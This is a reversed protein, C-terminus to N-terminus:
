GDSYATLGLYGLVDSVSRRPGSHFEQLDGAWRREDAQWQRIFDTCVTASIRLNVAMASELSAAIAQSNGIPSPPKSMDQFISRTERRFPLATTRHLTELLSRRKDLQQQWYASEDPITQLGHQLGDFLGQIIVEGFEEKAAREPHKFPDYEAQSYRANILGARRDRITQYAFLWDENYIDPFHSNIRRTNVGMCNGSLNSSGRERGVRYRYVHHNRLEMLAHYAVSSDPFGTNIGGVVDFRSLFLPIEVAAEQSINIDDDLFLVKEALLLGINRKLSLDSESNVGHNREAAKGASFTLWPHEYGEPIDVAYWTGCGTHALLDATEEIDTQQSCLVALPSRIDAALNAVDKLHAAGRGSPVVILDLDHHQITLDSSLLDFYTPYYPLNYPNGWSGSETSMPIHNTCYNIMGTLM